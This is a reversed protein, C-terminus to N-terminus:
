ASTERGGRRRPATADTACADAQSNKPKHRWLRSAQAVAGNPARRMSLIEVVAGLRAILAYALVAGDALGMPVGPTVFVSGISGIAPDAGRRGWARM